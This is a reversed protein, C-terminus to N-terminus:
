AIIEMEIPKTESAYIFLSGKDKDKDEKLIMGHKEVLSQVNKLSKDDLSVNIHLEFEKKFRNSQTLSMGSIFAGSICESIERFLRVAERRQMVCGRLNRLKISNSEFKLLFTCASAKSCIDNKVSHGHWFQKQFL